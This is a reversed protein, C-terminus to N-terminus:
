AQTVIYIYIYENLHFTQWALIKAEWNTKSKQTWVGFNLHQTHIFMDSKFDRNPMKKPIKLSMERKISLISCISTAMASQHLVRKKVYKQNVNNKIRFSFQDTLLFFFQSWKKLSDKQACHVPMCIWVCMKKWRVMSHHSTYYYNNCAFM